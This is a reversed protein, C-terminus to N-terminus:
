HALKLKKKGDLRSGQEKKYPSYHHVHPFTPHKKKSTRQFVKSDLLTSSIINIDKEARPKSHSGSIESVGCESDYTDLVPLITGLAKGVRCISKETKNAGLGKIAEKVLRNLHEMHLDGCINRGRIGHVNICRSWLLEEAHRPSLIFHYQMLMNLAENAYNTRNSNKFIPLLYQWCRLIRNGDAEKIADSFELYFLGGSVIQVAYEFVEDHSQETQRVKNFSFDVFKNVIICTTEIKKGRQDGDM